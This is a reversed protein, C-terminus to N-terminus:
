ERESRRDLEIVMDVTKGALHHECDPLFQLQGDKIYLHCCPNGPYGGGPSPSGKIHLSPMVTPKVFDRNWQWKAGTLPNPEKVWV